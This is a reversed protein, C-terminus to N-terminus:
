TIFPMKDFLLFDADHDVDPHKALLDYLADFEALAFPAVRCHARWVAATDGLCLVYIRCHRLIVLWQPHEKTAHVGCQYEHLAIRKHDDGQGKVRKVQNLVLQTVCIRVTGRIM